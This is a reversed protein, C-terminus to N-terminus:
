FTINRIEVIVKGANQTNNYEEWRWFLCKEPQGNRIFNTDNKLTFRWVQDTNIISLGKNQRLLAIAAIKM